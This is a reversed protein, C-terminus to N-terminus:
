CNKFFFSPTKLFFFFCFCAFFHYIDCCLLEGHRFLWKKKDVDFTFTSKEKTMEKEDEVTKVHIEYTIFKKTEPELNDDEESLIVLKELEVLDCSLLISQRWKKRKTTYEQDYKPHTTDMVYDPLRYAYATFRSRLLALPDSPVGKGEHFPKCCDGYDKGSNCACKENDTPQRTFNEDEEEELLGAIDSTSDEEKKAFGGKSKGPLLVLNKTNNNIIKGKKKNKNNNSKSKAKCLLGLRNVCRNRNNEILNAESQLHKSDFGVKNHSNTVIFGNGTSFLICVCQFFFFFRFLLFKGM